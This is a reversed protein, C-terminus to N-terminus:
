NRVKKKKQLNVHNEKSVSSLLKLYLHSVKIERRSDGGVALEKGQARNHGLGVNGPGHPQMSGVQGMSARCTEMQVAETGNM